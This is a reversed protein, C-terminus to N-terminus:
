LSGALHPGLVYPLFDPISMGSRIPEEARALPHLVFLNIPEDYARIRILQGRPVGGTPCSEHTKNLGQQRIPNEPVASNKISDSMNVEVNALTDPNGETPAYVHMHTGGPEDMQATVNVM